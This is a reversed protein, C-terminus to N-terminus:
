TNWPTAPRRTSPPPRPYFAAVARQARPLVPEARLLRYNYVRMMEECAPRSSPRASRASSAPRRSITSSPRACRWRRSSRPSRSARRRLPPGPLARRRRPDGPRGGGGRRRRVRLHHLREGGGAAILKATAAGLGRSGGVILASVGAFAGPQVLAALDRLSEQEVPRPRVFGEVRAVLGPGVAELTVSQLMPQFRKVAYALSSGAGGDTFTVDIKSLISHLGPVFMGVLTSLGGLGAVRGPGIARALRPALAAIAAPDPLRFAGTLGAMAAPDVPSRSLPSRM